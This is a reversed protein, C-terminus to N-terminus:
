GLHDVVEALLNGPRSNPVTEFDDLVAACAPGWAGYIEAHNPVRERNNYQFDLDDRTLGRYIATDSM